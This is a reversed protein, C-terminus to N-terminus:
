ETDVAHGSQLPQKVETMLAGGEQWGSCIVKVSPLLVCQLSISIFYIGNIM